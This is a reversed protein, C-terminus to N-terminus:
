AVGVMAVISCSSGTVTGTGIVGFRVWASKCPVQIALSCNGDFIRVLARAPINADTGVVAENQTDDIEADFWNTKDYSFQTRMLMNTLSGITFSVLACVQNQNVVELPNSYVLANTLVAAVRLAPPSSVTQWSM